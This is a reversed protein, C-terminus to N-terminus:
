KINFHVHEVRHAAAGVGVGAKSVCPAVSKATQTQECPVHMAENAKAQPVEVLIAAEGFIPVASVLLCGYNSTAYKGNLRGTTAYSAASPTSPM